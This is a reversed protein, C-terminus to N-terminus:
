VSDVGVVAVKEVPFYLDLRFNLSYNILSVAAGSISPSLAGFCHGIFDVFM